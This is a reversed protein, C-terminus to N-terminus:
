VDEEFAEINRPPRFTELLHDFDVEYRVQELALFIFFEVILSVNSM